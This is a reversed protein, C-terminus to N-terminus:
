VWIHRQFQEVPWIEKRQEKGAKCDEGKLKLGIGFWVVVRLCYYLSFLAKGNRWAFWVFRRYYSTHFSLFSISLFFYYWNVREISISSSCFVSCAKMQKIIVTRREEYYGLIGNGWVWMFWIVKKWPGEDRFVISSKCHESKIARQRSIDIIAAKLKCKINKAFQISQSFQFQIRILVKTRIPSNVAVTQTKCFLLSYTQHQLNCYLYEAIAGSLESQCRFPLQDVSCIDKANVVVLCVCM